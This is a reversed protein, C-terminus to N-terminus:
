FDGHDPLTATPLFRLDISPATEPMIEQSPTTALQSLDAAREWFRAMETQGLENCLGVLQRRIEVDGPRTRAKRVLENLQSRLERAQGMQTMVTEARETDGAQRCALGLQYLSEWDYRDLALTQQLADIAAGPEDDTM